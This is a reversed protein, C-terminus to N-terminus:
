QLPEQPPEFPAPWRIDNKRNLSSCAPQHEEDCLRPLGEADHSASQGVRIASQHEREIEKEKEKEIEKEREEIVELSSLSLLM